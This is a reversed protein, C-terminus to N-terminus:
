GSCLSLSSSCLRDPLAPALRVMAGQSVLQACRGPTGVVIHPNRQLAASQDLQSPLTLLLRCLRASSISVYSIGGIVTVVSVGMPKGVAQLQQFRPLSVRAPGFCM